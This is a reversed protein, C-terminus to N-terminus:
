RGFDVRSSQVRFCIGSLAHEGPTTRKLMSSYLDPSRDVIQYVEGDHCQIEVYALADTLAYPPLADGDYNRVQLSGTTPLSTTLTARVPNGMADSHACASAAACAIALFVHM